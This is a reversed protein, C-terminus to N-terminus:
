AAPYIGELANVLVYASGAVLAAAEDVVDLTFTISLDSALVLEYSFDEKPSANEAATAHRYLPNGTITKIPTAGVGATVSGSTIRLRPAAYDSSSGEVALKGSVLYTGAKLALTQFARGAVDNGGDTTLLGNSYTSDAGVTYAGLNVPTYTAGGDCRAWADSSKGGKAIVEAYNGGSTLITLVETGAKKGTSVATKRNDGHINITSVLSELDAQPVLLHNGLKSYVTM